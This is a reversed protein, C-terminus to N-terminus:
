RDRERAVSTALQRRRGGCVQLGVRDRVEADDDIGGIVRDRERVVDRRDDADGGREDAEAAPLRRYDKAHLPLRESDIPCDIPHSAMGLDVPEVLIDAVVGM